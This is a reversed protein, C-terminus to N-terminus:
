SIVETNAYQNYDSLKYWLFGNSFHTKSKLAKNINKYNKINNKRAAESCNSYYDIIKKDTSLKLIKDNKYANIEVNIKNKTKINEEYVWIYNNATKYYGNLCGILSTRCTNTKKAAESISNFKNIIEKKKNLQYVKRKSRTLKIYPNIQKKIENKEVYRFIYGNRMGKKSKCIKSIDSTNNIKYEKKVLSVSDLVNLLEGQLNYIAIKKSNGNGGDGGITMNYGNSNKNKYYSNYYNIWYKERENAKNDEIIDIIKWDFNKIGYKKIARYFLCNTQNKKNQHEKIRRELNNTKGIYIKNNIKNTAKYIYYM